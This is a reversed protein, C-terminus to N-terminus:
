IRRYIGKVKTGMWFGDVDDAERYSVEIKAYKQRGEIFVYFYLCDKNVGNIVFVYKQRKSNVWILGLPIM